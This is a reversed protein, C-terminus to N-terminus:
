RPRSIPLKWIGDIMKLKLAQKSNITADERLLGIIKEPSGRSTLIYIEVADSQLLHRGMENLAEGNFILGKPLKVCAQHFKLRCNPTAFREDGGQLIMLAGSEVRGVGITKIKSEANHLAHHIKLSAINDGGLCNAVVFFIPDDSEKDLKELAESVLASSKKTLWGSLWVTRKLLSYFVRTRKKESAM